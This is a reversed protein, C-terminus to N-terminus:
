FLQIIFDSHHLFVHLGPYQLLFCSNLYNAFLIGRHLFKLYLASTGKVLVVLKGELLHVSLVGYLSQVFVANFEEFHRRPAKTVLLSDLNDIFLCFNVV